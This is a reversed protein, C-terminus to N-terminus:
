RLEKASCPNSARGHGASVSENPTQEREIGAPAVTILRAKPRDTRDGVNSPHSCCTASQGDRVAMHGIQTRVFDVFYAGDAPISSRNWAQKRGDCTKMRPFRRIVVGGSLGYRIRIQVAYADAGTSRLAGRGPPLLGCFGASRVRGLSSLGCLLDVVLDIASSAPQGGRM